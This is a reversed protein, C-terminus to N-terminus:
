IKGNYLVTNGITLTLRRQSTIPPTVIGEAWDMIKRTLIPMCAAIDAPTKDYDAPWDAGQITTFFTIASAGNVVKHMVSREFEEVSPSRGKPSKNNLELWSCEQMAGLRAAGLSALYKLCQGNFYEPYRAFERNMVYWDFSVLDVTNVIQKLKAEEVAGPPGTLRDGGLNVWVPITHDLNRFDAAQKQIVDIPTNHNTENPEDDLYWAILNPPRFKDRLLQSNGVVLLGADAAAKCWDKSTTTPPKGLEPGVVYNCGRQKWTSFNSIPQQYCGFLFDPQPLSM